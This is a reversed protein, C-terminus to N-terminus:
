INFKNTRIDIQIDEKNESFNYIMFSPFTIKYSKDKKDITFLDVEEDPPVDYYRIKINDYFKTKKDDSYVPTINIIKGISNNIYLTFAEDNANSICLVYDGVKPEGKYKKIYKM